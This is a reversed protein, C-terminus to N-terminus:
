GKLKLVYTKGDIEVEKGECTPQETPIKIAYNWPMVDYGYNSNESYQGEAGFAVCVHRNRKDTFLYLRAKKNCIADEISIASVYVLEGEVLTESLFMLNDEHACYYLPTPTLLDFKICYFSMNDWVQVVTAVQNKLSLGFNSITYIVKDGVKFKNVM